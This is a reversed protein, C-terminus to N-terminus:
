QSGTLLAGRVGVVHVSLEALLDHVEPPVGQRRSLERLTAQLETLEAWQQENVHPVIVVKATIAGEVMLKTVSVGGLRAKDLLATKEEPALRLHIDSTRM